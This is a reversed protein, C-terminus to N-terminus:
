SRFMTRVLRLGQGLSVGPLYARGVANGISPLAAPDAFVMYMPVYDPQFKAKFALLSRFGYVPELTRGLVDLVTDMVAALTSQDATPASGDAETVKALPAGSLSVFEAGEEKLSLAASAILFEMAPRFGEARRRMFDLTWGVVRGDRYVPMWSTVGHVTREADVAILCRVRPDDIEDLGGLTFGMEPMGKDAVWEESIATIQDTLALPADPFSIWEARVGSKSARNLATRVDQFKKGKFELQDLHLVTEEAVQFGAWGISDTVARLEATVSYFCPIWGNGTAFDAFGTVNDRLAQPPGVPDGTTLAVGAIVRYAVYGRGDPAFWYRNGRWTTMWSLPGGTGSILLRRARETDDTAAGYAPAFFTAAVAVCVAVWLVVGTWEYLLTTVADDPLFRPDLWQLYVPPVLRQPYDALLAPVSPVRDFGSRAIMGLAVYAVGLAGAVGALRLWWRRYTGHPASVTFFRRTVVLLVLVALPTLFPALTRYVTPSDLGYFLSDGEVFGVYRVAFNLLSLALLVGQACVVAIWAFRRGRRLGDALVLLLISPMLSLITPGVGGLRLGLLGRRCDEGTRSQVCLDRVEAPTWEVGRFLDRLVALPGVANPSLAALAPGLASAAVVLAVLVRGERQTGALRQGRASRGVIVPGLVLGVVASSLRVLDLLHGGFLALTILLALLGVRLRRRWLTTMSSSAVMAVGVIWPTPSVSFGVHLRFGWGGDVLKVVECLALAVLTGFVQTTLAAVAFRGSGIRHEIPAAILLIAATALLYGALGQAWLGSTVATWIRGHEFAMIGAAFQHTVSRGAGRGLNGTAAGLVWLLVLLCISVPAGSAGFRVLGALRRSQRSLTALASTM